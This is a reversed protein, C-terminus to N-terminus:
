RKRVDFTDFLMGTHDFAKFSLEDGHITVYCFHYDSRCQAKFWTPVPSFDELRGGGGGSTIYLVGKHRDVKGARIPWSREYVHIHGNFVMDVNHKEYLTVLQRVNMDGQTSKKGKRTDGYDDDDSSYAPHHHYVFKWKANSKALEADLWRYQESNPGVRKNTDLSLFDANGYRYRYYYEPAPLSFYNYYHAHNKEHNGICPYVPVRGFLEKCPGFLEHTWERKDPGNDVVDGLHVVFNPRRQWALTAIKQTVKPNKQTDGILVFSFVEDPGVAPQFTLLPGTLSQGGGSTQVKYVYAAGQELDTLTVEHLTVDKPGERTKTLGGIGYRVVSSGPFSTEWMITIATPTAYQLYPAVVFHPGAPKAGPPKKGPAAQSARDPRHLFLVAVVVLLVCGVIVLHRSMSLRM